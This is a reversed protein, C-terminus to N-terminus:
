VLARIFYYVFILSLALKMFTGALFGLFSGFAAKFAKGSQKGALMEGVLAGLFPGVIIGIPPLFFIGVFVGIVAGWQGKKTGGFVKTGYAPVVYDLAVIAATVIAWIVLFRATFPHYSTFQLLLLSLYSLPPGPLVPIFSGAIGLILFIIGIIILITDM